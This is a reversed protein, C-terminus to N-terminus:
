KPEIKVPKVAPIAAPTAAPKTADPKVRVCSIEMTKMEKGDPGPGYFEMKYSDKGTVTMVERTESTKKTTPDTMPGKFTFVKGTTDVSGTMSMMGTGMTDFWVSEYREDVNNYGQVGIGEFKQGMFDGTYRTYLFRGEFKMTNVMTGKTTSEMGPMLSTVTTEWDGVMVEMLKHKEGPTAAKMWAEMEAQMKEQAAKDPQIAEKAKKEAEKVGDQVKKKVDDGVNQALCPAAFLGAAAILVLTRKM